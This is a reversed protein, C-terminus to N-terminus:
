AITQTPLHKPAAVVRFQIKLWALLTDAPIISERDSNGDQNFLYFGYTEISDKSDHPWAFYPIVRLAAPKIKGTDQRFLEDVSMMRAAQDRIDKKAQDLLEKREEESLQPANCAFATALFIFILYRM